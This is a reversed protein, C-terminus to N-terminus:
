HAPQYHDLLKQGAYVVGAVVGAHVTASALDNRGTFLGILYCKSPIQVILGPSFVFAAAGALAATRLTKHSRHKM